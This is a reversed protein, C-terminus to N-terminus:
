ITVRDYTLDVKVTLKQSESRRIRKSLSTTQGRVVLKVFTSKILFINFCM